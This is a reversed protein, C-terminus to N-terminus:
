YRLGFCSRVYPALYDPYTSLSVRFHVTRSSHLSGTSYVLFIYPFSLIAPIARSLVSTYLGPITRTLIIHTPVPRCDPGQQGAPRPSPHSPHPVRTCIEPFRMTACLRSRSRLRLVAFTVAAAVTVTVAPRFSKELRPSALRPSALRSPALPFGECDSAM